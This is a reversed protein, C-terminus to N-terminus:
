TLLTSGGWECDIKKKYVIKFINLYFYPQLCIVICIYIKLLFSTVFTKQINVLSERHKM